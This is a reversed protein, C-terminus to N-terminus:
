KQIINWQTSTCMEKMWDDNPYRPHNWLKSITLLAAIFMPLSSDRNYTSKCEKLYIGLLPIDQPIEMGIEMTSVSIQMGVLLM